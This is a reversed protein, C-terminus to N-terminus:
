AGRYGIITEEAVRWLGLGGTAEQYWTDVYGLGYSLIVIRPDDSQIHYSSRTLEVPTPGTTSEGVYWILVQMQNDWTKLIDPSRSVLDGSGINLALHTLAPFYEKLEKLDNM